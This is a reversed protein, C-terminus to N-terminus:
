SCGPWCRWSRWCWRGTASSGPAATPCCGTPTPGPSPSPPSSRWCRARHLLRQLAPDPDGPARHGPRLRRDRRHGRLLSLRDPARGRHHHRGLVRARAGFGRKPGLHGRPARAPRPLGVSVGGRHADRRRGRDRPRLQPAPRSPPGAALLLQGPGLAIILGGVLYVGFVGPTFEIVRGRAHEATALYLAPAITTPNLSDAIGISIVLGILRLM